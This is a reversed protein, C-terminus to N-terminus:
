AVRYWYRCLDTAHSIHRTARVAIRRAAYSWLLVATDGHRRFAYLGKTMGRYDHWTGLVSSGHCRGAKRGIRTRLFRNRIFSETKAQNRLRTFVVVYHRPKCIQQAVAHPPLESSKNAHCVGRRSLRNSAFAQLSKEARIRLTGFGPPDPAPPPPPPPPPRPATATTSVVPNPVSGDKMKDATQHAGDDSRLALGGAIAALGCIALTAQRLPSSVYPVKGVGVLDFGGGV